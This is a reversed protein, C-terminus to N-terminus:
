LMLSDRAQIAKPFARRCKGLGRWETNVSSPVALVALILTAAPCSLFPGSPPVGVNWFGVRGPYDQVTTQAGADLVDITPPLYVFESLTKTIIKGDAFSRVGSDWVEQRLPMLVPATPVFDKAGARLAHVKHAPEATIVLVPLYGETEIEKLAEMVKFGNKM